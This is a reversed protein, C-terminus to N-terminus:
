SFILLISKECRKFNRDVWSFLDFGDLRLSLFPCFDYHVGFIKKCKQFYILWKILCVILWDFLCKLIFGLWM